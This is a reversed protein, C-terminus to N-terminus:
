APERTGLFALAADRYFRVPLPEPGSLVEALDRQATQLVVENMLEAARPHDGIRASLLAREVRAPLYDPAATCLEDLLRGAIVEDGAEILQLCTLHIAIPEPPPRQTALKSTPIVDPRPPPPTPVHRPLLFTQLEPPGIRVLGPPPDLRDITGLVLVGGPDLSTTLLSSVREAADPTFYVLVNRCMVIHFAGIEYPPADLLSHQRFQTVARLEPLVEFTNRDIQEMVPYLVPGSPRILPRGYRAAIAVDLNRDLLDTGLVRIAIDRGETVHMLMAALSYAEAGTACGASWARIEKLGARVLRPVVDRALFAFQEPQRFFYTEGVVVMERVARVVDPHEEMAGRVIGELTWGGARLDSVAREVARTRISGPAFGTWHVALRTLESVLWEDQAGNENV